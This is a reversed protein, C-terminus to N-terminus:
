NQLGGVDRVVEEVVGEVGGEVEVSLFCHTLGDSVRGLVELVFVRSKTEV